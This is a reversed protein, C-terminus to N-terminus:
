RQITFSRGWGMMQAAAMPSVAAKVYVARGDRMVWPAHEARRRRVMREAKRPLGRKRSPRHGISTRYSSNSMDVDIGALRPAAGRCGPLLAMGAEVLRRTLTGATDRPLIPVRTQALIPGADVKPAAKHMTIGTVPAGDAIAWYV